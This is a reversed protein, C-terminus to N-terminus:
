KDQTFKAYFDPNIFQKFHNSAIEHAKDLWEALQNQAMKGEYYVTSQWILAPKNDHSLGTSLLVELFNNQALKFSQNLNLNDVDINEIFPNDLRLNFNNNIFNIKNKDGITYADIYKLRITIFTLEKQWSKALYKIAKHILKKYNDWTYNAEIDNVVLMGPGIQLVPWTNEAKWFQHVPAPYLSIPMGALPAKKRFPFDHKTLNAFVGKAFNFEEDLPIGHEDRGIEWLMEFIVEQLPANPLKSHHPKYVM